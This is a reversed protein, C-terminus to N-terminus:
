KNGNNNEKPCDKPPINDPNVARRLLKCVTECDGRSLSVTTRSYKCKGCTM